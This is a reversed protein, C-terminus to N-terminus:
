DGSALPWSLRVRTGKGIASAVSIEAGQDALIRRVSALGLGAHDDRSGQFIEFLTPLAAEDIGEGDDELVIELQQGRRNSSLALRGGTPTADVANAILHHLLREFLAADALIRTDDRAIGSADITLERQAAIASWAALARDIAEAADIPAPKPAETPARRALPALREAIRGLEGALRILHKRPGAALTEDRLLAQAMLGLGGLPRALRENAAAALEAVLAPPVAVPPMSEARGAADSLIVAFRFPGDSRAPLPRLLVELTGAPRRILHRAAEGADIGAETPPLLAPLWSERLREPAIGLLEAARPTAHAVQGQGDALVIGAPLAALADELAAARALGQRSALAQQQSTRREYAEKNERAEQLREALRNISGAIPALASGRPIDVRQEFHGEAIEAAHQQVQRWPRLLRRAFLVGLLTMTLLLVALAVAWLTPVVAQARLDETPTTAALSWRLPSAASSVLALRADVGAFLVTRMGETVHGHDGRMSRDALPRPLSDGMQIAPLLQSKDDAGRRAQWRLIRGSHDLLHWRAAHLSPAAPLRETLASQPLELLLAAHVRGEGDRVAAGLHLRAVADADDTLPSVYVQGPAADLVVRLGEQEDSAITTAVFGGVHTAGRDAQLLVQGDRDVLRLRQWHPQGRLLDGLEEAVRDALAPRNKDASALLARMGSGDAAARLARAHHELERGLVTAAADVHAAAHGIAADLTSSRLMRIGVAGAILPPLLAILAFGALLRADVTRLLGPLRSTQKSM